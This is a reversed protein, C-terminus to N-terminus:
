PSATAPATTAGGPAPSQLSIQRPREDRVARLRDIFADIEGVVWEPRDQHPWHTLEPNVLHKKDKVGVLLSAQMAIWNKQDEAKGVASKQFHGPNSTTFMLVPVDPRIAVGRISNANGDFALIEELSSGTYEQNAPTWWKFYEESEEKSWTKRIYHFWDEHPADMFVLGAVEEPHRDAYYRIVFGGMSHGLLVYPPPVDLKRLLERLDRDFYALTRPDRNPTSDGIGPRDFIIVRTKSALRTQLDLYATKPVAVGSIIVVAPRGKGIDRYSVMAGALPIEDIRKYWKWIYPRVYPWSVLAAVMGVLLLALIARKHRLLFSV